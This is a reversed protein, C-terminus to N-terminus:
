EVTVSKALNRPQDVDTGKLVAVHYALLQLPVVYVIPALVKHVAPLPIITVGPEPALRLHEDAIRAAFEAGILNGFDVKCDTNSTCDAGLGQRQTRMDDSPTIIGQDVLEEFTLDWEGHLVELLQFERLKAIPEGSPGIRMSVLTGIFGDGMFVDGSWIEAHTDLHARASGFFSLESGDASVVVDRSTNADFQIVEIGPRLHVGPLAEGPQLNLPQLREYRTARASTFGDAGQRPARPEFTEEGCAGASLGIVMMLGLLQRSTGGWASMSESRMLM